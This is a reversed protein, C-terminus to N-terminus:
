MWIKHTCKFMKKKFFDSIAFYLLVFEKIRNKLFYVIINKLLIIIIYERYCPFHWYEKLVVLANRINYYQRLMSHNQIKYKFILKSENGLRHNIILNKNVLIDYKCVRIRWCWETDVWDIFLEEKMLGVDNLVNVPIIMGSSIVHSVSICEDLNNVNYVKKLKKNKLVLVPEIERRSNLDRFLPALAGVRYNNKYKEYFFMMEKVYNYPYITDQDSTLVFDAGENIAINIGINQAYAIGMNNNLFIVDIKKKDNFVELDNCGLNTNDIIYIKDTQNILSDICQKLISINPNYTVIVSYIKNKMKKVEIM